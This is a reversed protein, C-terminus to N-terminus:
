GPRSYCDQFLQDGPGHIPKPTLLIDASGYMCQQWFLM